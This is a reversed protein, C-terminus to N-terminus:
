GMGRYSHHLSNIVACHTKSTQNIPSALVSLCVWSLFYCMDGVRSNGRQLEVLHTKQCACQFFFKGNIIQVLANAQHVAKWSSHSGFCTKNLRFLAGIIQPVEQISTYAHWEISVPVSMHNANEKDQFPPSLVLNMVFIQMLVKMRIWCPILCMRQGANGFSVIQM